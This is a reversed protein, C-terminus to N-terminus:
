TEEVEGKAYLYLPLDSPGVSFMVNASRNSPILIAEIAWGLRTLAGEFSWPGEPLVFEFRSSGSPNTDNLVCTEVIGIQRPAAGSTLWFLRIEISRPAPDASWEVSGSISEGPRYSARVGHIAISVASM